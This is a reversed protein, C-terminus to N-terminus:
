IHVVILLYYEILVNLQNYDIGREAVMHDAKIRLPWNNMRVHLVIVTKHSRLLTTPIKDIFIFVFLFM